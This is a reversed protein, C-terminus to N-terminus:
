RFGDLAQEGDGARAKPESPDDHHVHNDGGKDMVHLLHLLSAPEGLPSAWKPRATM